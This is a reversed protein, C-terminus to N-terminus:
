NAIGALLEKANALASEGVEEGALMRALERVREEHELLRVRTAVRGQSELKEIRFHQAARGAIQPLHTIVVVQYHRAIEELKRAVVAAERGGLGTDVEDFILTPVGARGALVVKLGLMVRSIEGGSAIKSLPRMPEGANASFDFEVRDCGDASVTKADVRVGFLARPMALERLQAVVQESFNAARSRRLESLRAAVDALRADAEASRRELAETNAEADELVALEERARELHLLLADEGDGYKRYLRRYGDIRGAVRELRDPDPEVGDAYSRLERLGDELAYLASRLQDLAPEVTPDLAACAELAKVSASLREIGSGESESLSDLAGYAAQALREVNQLRSLQGELEELENPLPAFLELEQVQFRLLDIRQERDRLGSQLAALQRRAEEAELFAAGVESKLRIADEGIWADLYDAHRDPLLLSQHDHQGHLDVLLDGLQKLTSVAAPRGNIRCTSRGEASVERQIFVLGEETGYGMQACLDSLEPSDSLDASLTVVGRASGARVLDSDAREGLALGIADVLLSKGAGTEGTLATFGAGLSVQAREIIAINEVTLEQIM